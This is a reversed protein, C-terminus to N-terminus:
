TQHILPYFVLQAGTEDEIIDSIEQVHHISANDLIIVSHPNTYNFPQIVPLLCSRVIAAFKKAM